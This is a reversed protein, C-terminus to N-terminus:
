IDTGGTVGNSEEIRAGERILEVFSEFSRQNLYTLSNQMYMMRNTNAKLSAEKKQKVEYELALILEDCTYGGEKLIADFKKRCEEKKQRLSRSGSFTKGKYTFTDTGPYSKWWDAFCSEPIVVTKIQPVASDDSLSDLIAKGVLTIEFDETVLGKRYLSHLLVELKLSGKVFSKVDNGSNIQSM